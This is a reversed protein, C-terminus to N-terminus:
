GFGLQRKRRAMFDTLEAEIAGDLAPPQYSALLQKWKRNARQATDLAGDIEWQEASNYDFLEARYFATRFHRMTHQTGLFHGGPAVEAMADLAFAEDSLDIGRAWTHYM